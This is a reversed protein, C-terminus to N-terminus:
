ENDSSSVHIKKAEKDDIKAKASACADEVWAKRIYDKQYMDEAIATLIVAAIETMKREFEESGPTLTKNEEATVLVNINASSFAKSEVAEIVLKM